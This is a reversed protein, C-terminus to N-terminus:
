LEYLHVVEKLKKKNIINKHIVSGTGLDSEVSTNVSTFVIYYFISVNLIVTLVMTIFVINWFFISMPLDGKLNQLIKNKQLGLM